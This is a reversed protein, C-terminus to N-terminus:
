NGKTSQTKTDAEEKKEKEYPNTSDNSNYYGGGKEAGLGQVEGGWKKELQEVTYIGPKAVNGEKSWTYVTGNKSTGLYTASHVTNGASNGFRILTIGFRFEEPKKTVDVYGGGRLFNALDYGQVIADTKDIWTKTLLAMSSEHCDYNHNWWWDGGTYNTPHLKFDVIAGSINRIGPVTNDMEVSGDPCRNQWLADAVAQEVDLFDALSKADDGEERLLVIGYDKVIPKWEPGNGTPDNYCIPNNKVFNYTSLSPYKTGWADPSFWRGLRTDLIRAGFDYSNGGGKVENDKEMGNFGRRYFDGQITRGDLQVGFPSYDAINRIPVCYSVFGSYSIGAFPNLSKIHQIKNM